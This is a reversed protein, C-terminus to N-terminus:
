FAASCVKPKAGAKMQNGASNWTPTRAPPSVSLFFPLAQSFSFSQPSSPLPFFFPSLRM